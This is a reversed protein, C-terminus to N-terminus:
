PEHKVSTEAESGEQQFRTDILVATPSPISTVYASAFCLMSPEICTVDLVSHIKTRAINHTKTLVITAPTTM